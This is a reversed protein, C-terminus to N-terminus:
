NPQPEKSGKLQAIQNITPTDELVSSILRYKDTESVWSYMEVRSLVEIEQLPTYV